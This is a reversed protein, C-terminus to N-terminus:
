QFKDLTHDLLTLYSTMPDLPKPWRQEYLLFVAECARCIAMYFKFRQRSEYHEIGKATDDDLMEQVKPIFVAQYETGTSKRLESVVVGREVERRYRELIHSKEHFIAIQAPPVGGAILSAIKERVFVREQEWSPFFHAEPCSGSRLMVADLDPMIFGSGEEALLQKALPDNEILSYAARFIERTNRYPIRLWRTRGAVNVGKQRWSYYRYVSQSPDDCIFITGTPKLMGLLIKIWTPAMHQGEDVLIADYLPRAQIGERQYRLTREHLDVWDIAPLEKLQAEYAEFLDFIRGKQQATLRRGSEAARGQRQESIYQDRQTRGTEKMWSFEEALFTTGLTVVDPFLETMHSVVGLADQPNPLFGTKKRYVETCLADFTDVDAIGELEPKLRQACIPKNYTTALIRWDPNESRLFHARRVLVDTKGTGAFGRVLRVHHAQIFERVEEPIIDDDETSMGVADSNSAPQEPQPSRLIRTFDFKRQTKASKAAAVSATPAASPKAVSEKVISEQTLDYVGLFQSGRCNKNMDDLIARVASVQRETMRSRHKALVGAVSSTIVQRQLDNRGLIFGEGWYRELRSIQSMQLFPLVGGYAYYFDLKGAFGCLDPDESLMNSLVQAATRAQEVPSTERKDPASPLTNEWYAYKGDAYDVTVWDKVELVIVGWQDYVIVYDPCRVKDRYALRPQAYVIAGDPLYHLAEYVDQDGPENGPHGYVTAAM